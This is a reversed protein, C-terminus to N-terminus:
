MGFLAAKLWLTIFNNYYFIFYYFYVSHEKKDYKKDKKNYRMNSSCSCRPSMLLWLWPSSFLYRDIQTISIFHKQCIISRWWQCGHSLAYEFSYTFFFTFRNAYLEGKWVTHKFSKGSWILFAIFVYSYWIFNGSNNELLGNVFWGWKNNKPLWLIILAIANDFYLHSPACFIPLM